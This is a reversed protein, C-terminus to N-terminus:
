ISYSVHRPYKAGSLKLEMKYNEGFFLKNLKLFHRGSLIIQMMKVGQTCGFCYMALFSFNTVHNGYKGKCLIGFRPFIYWIAVLNGFQWLIYWVAMVCIEFPWLIYWSNENWPVVFNVWVPIKPKFMYWRAVRTPLRLLIERFSQWLLTTWERIDIDCTDWIWKRLKQDSKKRCMYM